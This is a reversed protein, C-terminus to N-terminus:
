KVLNINKQKSEMLFHSSEELSKIDSELLHEIAEWDKITIEAIEKRNIIKTNGNMFQLKIKDIRLYKATRTYFIDDFSYSVIDDKEIPGVGKVTKTGIEDEVPNIATLTISIYKITEKHLNKLSISCGISYDDGTVDYQTIVLQNKEIANYNLIDINFVQDNYFNVTLNFKKYCFTNATDEYSDKDPEGFVDKLYERTLTGDKVMSNLDHYYDCSNLYEKYNFSNILKIVQAKTVRKLTGVFIPINTLKKFCVFGEDKVHLKIAKVDLTDLLDNFTEYKIDIIKGNPYYTYFQGYNTIQTLLFLYIIKKVM